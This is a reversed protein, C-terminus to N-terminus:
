LCVSIPEERDVLRPYAHSLMEPWASAAMQVALVENDSDSCIQPNSIIIRDNDPWQMMQVKQQTQATWGGVWVGGDGAQGENVVM